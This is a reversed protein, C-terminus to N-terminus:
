ASANMKVITTGNDFGFAVKYSGKKHGIAWVRELGYNLKHELSFTTANWIHVTGDESTTIIIPLEPHVSVTTVNNEHGELTQVCSTTEYDWVKATFDDSGSLLYTKDSHVFYDVCNVGKSHGQLTFNPASSGINWTKITGDLSASAFSNTDKPNFAVQMVYHSHGEFVQTCEWDKEWDWLKIVKDDSCSLLYPLTPHVTVSRIYDTHAEYEKIKEMTNYNYVRIFKDDAGTIIWHKRAVFKVSRVPSETVKISKELTQSQYNWICITGSYLSALMWPETPHLDVSKVRESTQAFEKEITLSPAM